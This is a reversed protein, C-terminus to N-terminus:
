MEKEKTIMQLIEKLQESDAIRTGEIANALEESEKILEDNHIKVSAKIYQNVFITAVIYIACGVIIAVPKNNIKIVIMNGVKQAIICSTIMVTIGFWTTTRLIQSFSKTSIM